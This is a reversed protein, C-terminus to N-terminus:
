RGPYLVCGGQVAIAEGHFVGLGFLFSHEHRGIKAPLAPTQLQLQAFSTLVALTFEDWIKLPDQFFGAAECEGPLFDKDSYNKGTNNQFRCEKATGAKKIAGM